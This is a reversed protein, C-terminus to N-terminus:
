PQERVQYARGTRNQRLEFMTDLPLWQQVEVLYLNRKGSRECYSLIIILYTIAILKNLQSRQQGYTQLFLSFTNEKTSYERQRTHPRIYPLCEIFTHEILENFLCMICYPCILSLDLCVQPMLFTNGSLM